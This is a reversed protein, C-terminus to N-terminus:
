SRVTCSVRQRLGPKSSLCITVQLVICHIKTIPTRRFRALQNGASATSKWATRWHPAATRAPFWGCLLSYLKTEQVRDMELIIRELFYKDLVRGRGTEIPQLAVGHGRRLLRALHKCIVETAVGLLSDAAAIAADCGNYYLAAILTSLGTADVKSSVSPSTSSVARTYLPLFLCNSCSICQEARM